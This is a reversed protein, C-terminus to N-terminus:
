GVLGPDVWGQLLAMMGAQFKTRAGLQAALDATERRVTRVSVDLRRAIMEDTFGKALLVVIAQCRPSLGPGAAPPAEAVPQSSQWVREFLECLASVVGHGRLVLAGKRSEEPDVPVIATARDYIVMRPPLTPAVRVQAGQETLRRAYAVTDNDNKISELYISRMRVGRGLVATDLPRSAEINAPSMAGSPVFGMVEETCGAALAEIRLRIADIGTLVESDPHQRTRSLDAYDAVVQALERRGHEIDELRRQLEAERRDLLSRLGAEPEVPRLQGPEQWSPRVLLLRALEDMATRVETEPRGLRQAIAAVGSTPAKLMEKYVAETM